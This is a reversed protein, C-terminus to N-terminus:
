AKCELYFKSKYTNVSLHSTALLLNTLHEFVVWFFTLLTTKDYHFVKFPGARVSVYLPPFAIARKSYFSKKKFDSHIRIKSRVQNLTKSIESASSTIFFSVYSTILSGFPFFIYVYLPFISFGRISLFNYFINSFVGFGMLLFAFSECFKIMSLFIQLESYFNYFTELRKVGAKSVCHFVDNIFTCSNCILIITSMITILLMRAGGVVGISSLYVRLFALSFRVSQYHLLNGLVIEFISYFPDFQLYLGAIIVLFQLFKFSSSCGVFMADILGPRTESGICFYKNIM